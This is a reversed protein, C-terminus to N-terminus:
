RDGGDTEGVRRPHDFAPTGRVPPVPPFIGRDDATTMWNSRARISGPRKDPPRPVSGQRLGPWRGCSKRQPAISNARHSIWGGSGGPHFPRRWRRLSCRARDLVPDPHDSRATIRRTSLNPREEPDILVRQGAQQAFVDIAQSIPLDQFDFQIPSAELVLANEIQAILARSRTRIEADKSDKGAQLAPLAARGLRALEGEAAVRLAYRSSGLQKVLSTPDVVPHSDLLIAMMMIAVFM